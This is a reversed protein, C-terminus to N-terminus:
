KLTGKRKTKYYSVGAGFVWGITGKQTKIKVWPEEVTATGISLKQPEKTTENLFSVEAYLALKGLSKAKLNPETRVNLGDMTVYLKPKAPTAAPIPKPAAPTIPAVPKPTVPLTAVQNNPTVPVATAPDPLPAPAVVTRTPTKPLLALSDRTRAAEVDAYRNRTANCKSVAWMIFGLFLVAVIIVEINAFIGSRKKEAM